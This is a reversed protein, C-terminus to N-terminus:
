AGYPSADFSTFWQGGPMEADIEHAINWVTWLGNAVKLASEIQVQQAMQIQPNFVTRVSVGAGTNSTSYGPYGVLGSQPSILVPTGRRSGGAPWIALTSDKIIWGFGAARACDAIQKRYSGEFYPTSLIQSAGSSNEFFLGARQALNLLITAADASGPYSTAEATKVAELLGSFAMVNLSVNPAANMDLQSLSIQGEFVTALAAGEDGARVIVRNARVAETAQNLSALENLVSPRLGFVRMRLQGMGPGIVDQVVCQVRHDRVVVRSPEGDEGFAGKGLKFELEIKRRVFTM